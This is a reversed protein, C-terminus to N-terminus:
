CFDAPTDRSQYATQTKKLYPIVRGSKVITHYTHCYKPLPDKQLRSVVWFVGDQIPNLAHCLERPLQLKEFTFYNQLIQNNYNLLEM